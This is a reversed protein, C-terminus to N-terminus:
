PSRLPRPLSRSSALMLAAGVLLSVAALSWAAPYGAAQVVFGFVTPTVVAGAYLGTQTVGTAASPTDPYADVVAALVLGNWGWGAGFLLVTVPALLSTPLFALGVFGVGGLLLFGAAMALRSVRAHDSWWGGVVRVVIGSLGGLAFLLGATAVGVHHRVASEVYFANLCNVAGASLAAGVAVFVLPGRRGQLPAEAHHHRRGRGGEPRGLVILAPISLLAACVFAWRWGVTLGLLPVSVGSILSALPGASQKVGFAAGTHGPPIVSAVLGNTAVQALANGAGGVVMWPLVTAWSTALAAIGILATIGLGVAWRAARTAGWREALNGAPVSCVASAAFFVATAVGLRAESFGLDPRILAALAGLAMVPLLGLATGLMAGAFRRAILATPARATDLPQGPPVDTM